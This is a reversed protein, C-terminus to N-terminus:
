PFTFRCGFSGIRHCYHPAPEPVVGGSSYNTGSVSNITFGAVPQGNSDLVTLGTLLMTSLFNANVLTNETAKPGAYIRAADGFSLALNFQVGPQFSIGNLVFKASYSNQTADPFLSDIVTSGDPGFEQIGLGVTQPLAVNDWSGTGHVTVTPVLSYTGGSLGTITLIDSFFASGNADEAGGLISTNSDFMTSQTGLVGMAAHAAGCASQTATSILCGSFTAQSASTVPIFPTGNSLIPTTSTGNYYQIGAVFGAPLITGGNLIPGLLVTSAFAILLSCSFSYKM